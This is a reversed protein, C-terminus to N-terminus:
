AVSPGAFPPASNIKFILIKGQPALRPRGRRERPRGRVHRPLHLGERRRQGRRDQLLLPHRRAACLAAEEVVVHQAPGEQGALGAQDGCRSSSWDCGITDIFRKATLWDGIAHSRPPPFLSLSLAFSLFLSPVKIDLVKLLAKNEDELRDVLLTAQQNWNKTSSISPVISKIEIRRTPDTEGDTQVERWCYLDELHEELNKSLLSWAPEFWCCLLPTANARLSLTHTHTRPINAISLIQHTSHPPAPGVLAPRPPRAPRRPSFTTSPSSGPM